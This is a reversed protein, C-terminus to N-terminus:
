APRERAVTHVNGSRGSACDSQNASDAAAPRAPPRLLRLCARLWDAGDALRGHRAQEMIEYRHM